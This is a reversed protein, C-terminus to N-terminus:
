NTHLTLTLVRFCRACSKTEFSVACHKTIWEYLRLDPELGPLVLWFKFHKQTALIILLARYRRYYSSNILM